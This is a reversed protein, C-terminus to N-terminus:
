YAGVTRGSTGSISNRSRLPYYVTEKPASRGVAPFALLHSASATLDYRQQQGIWVFYREDTCTRTAEVVRRATSVGRVLGTRALVYALPLGLGYLGVALLLIELILERM